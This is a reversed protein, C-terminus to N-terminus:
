GRVCPGRRRSSPTPCTCPTAGATSTSAHLDRRQRPRAGRRPEGYEYIFDGLFVVLDPAWGALDSHAAYYGTEFRQCSASAIRLQEPNTGTPAVRGIPSTSEGSRFRFFSPAAVDVVAHVSHAEDARAVVEGSGSISTFSEEDALEWIVTVDDGGLPSGDAQALRTWLVASHEDPDGACVGLTFPNAGPATVSRGGFRPVMAVAAGIALLERRSLQDM